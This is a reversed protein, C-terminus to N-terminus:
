GRAMQQTTPAPEDISLPLTVIFEAGPTYHPNYEIKGGHRRLIEHVLSLGLGMGGKQTSIYSTFLKPAVEASVGVGNDKLRVEALSGRKMAQIDIRGNLQNAAMIAQAANLLLNNFVQQLRGVDGYVWLPEDPFDMHIQLRQDTELFLRTKAQHIIPILDIKARNYDSVIGNTFERFDDVLHRLDKIIALGQEKTKEGPEQLCNTLPTILPSIQHVVMAAMEGLLRNKNLSDIKDILKAMRVITLFRDFFSRLLRKEEPTFNLKTNSFVCICSYLIIHNRIQKEDLLKALAPSPHDFFPIYVITKVEHQRKEDVFSHVARSFFPEGNEAHMVFLPPHDGPISTLVRARFQEPLCFNDYSLCARTTCDTCDLMATSVVGDILDGMKEQLVQKFYGFQYGNRIADNNNIFLNYVEQEIAKRQTAKQHYRLAGEVVYLINQPDEDKVMYYFASKRMAETIYDKDRYATLMIVQIEEGYLEKIEDLVQLGDKGPMKRDLLVVVPRQQRIRELGIEGNEAEDINKYGASELNMRTALRVDPDDDIILIKQDKLEM